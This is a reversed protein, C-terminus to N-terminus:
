PISFSSYQFNVWVFSLLGMENLKDIYNLLSGIKTKVDDQQNVTLVPLSTVGTIRMNEALKESRSKLVHAYLQLDDKGFKFM